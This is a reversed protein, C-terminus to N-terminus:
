GLPMGQIGIGLRKSKKPSIIVPNLEDGDDSEDANEIYSVIAEASSSIMERMKWLNSLFKPLTRFALFTITPCKFVFEQKFYYIGSFPLSLSYVYFFNSFVQIGYVKIKRFQQFDGRYNIRIFNLIIKLFKAIKNRDGIYHSHDPNTPSGSVEVVLFELNVDLLKMIADIKNGSSRRDNDQQLNNFLIASCRLSKEGLTKAIRLIRRKWRINNDGTRLSTCESKLAKCLKDYSNVNKLGNKTYAKVEVRGDKTKEVKNRMNSPKATTSLVTEIANIM